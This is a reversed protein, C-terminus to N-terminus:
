YSGGLFFYVDDIGESGFGHAYGLRFFLPLAYGLTTELLVEGGAGFFFRADVLPGNFASGYDAFLAGSLRGIHIPLTDFGQELNVVPFRYEGTLVHFQEGFAVAPVFGRLFSGGQPAENIIATIIEQPPPGGVSFQERRRFDTRGFGGRARAVFVHHDLWPAQLNYSASYSLQTSSVKSGTLEDRFRLSLSLNYGHEATVSQSYRETDGVFWSIFAASFNGQDPQRPVIDAPDPLLEPEEFSDTFRLNYGVSFRHSATTSRLPLSLTVQGDWAQEKFPVFRSQAVLGQTREFISHQLGLNLDVPLRTYGYGAVLLSTETEDFYQGSMSWFHHGVPDNGAMELGYGGSASTFALLPSISQPLLYRGPAYDAPPEVVLPAEIAPMAVEPRDLMSEPADMFRAPDFLMRGMDFGKVGFRSVYLWQRDGDQVVAPTFLGREVRTVRRVPLGDLRLVPDPLRDAQADARAALGELDIAYIDYVRTRDSAFVLWRGDPSFAPELDLARDETLQLLRDRALDYLYIDRGRADRWLSTAIFRGDPSFIPTDFQGQIPNDFLVRREQTTLDIMVLRTTARANEVFVIRRGTPDFDPDRARQGRTIQLEDRTLTDRLILENFSWSNRYARTAHFVVYRGTPDWQHHGGGGPIAFLREVAGTDLDHSYLGDSDTPPSAYFTVARTGPRLRPSNATQGHDTVPEIPTVGEQRIQRVQAEYAAAASDQWQRYLTVFDEGLIERATNNMSYPLVRTGYLHSFKRFFDEGRTEAVWALFHSGYLYPASGRPWEYPTSSLNGLDFFNDDLWATRLYMHFLSSRVRGGGTRASEEYTALGETFWRPVLQNPSARKGLLDNLLAPLGGVTDIHLIHAYEHIILGRLWDDYDGLSGRAEPGYLFLNVTNRPVILASGNSTDILDNLIVHTRSAPQWDLLPALIAHAEECYLAVREPVEGLDEHYHIIFHETQLTSWRGPPEAAEAQAAAAAIMVWVCVLSIQLGRDDM